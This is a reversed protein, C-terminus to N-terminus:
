RYGADTGLLELKLLPLSCTLHAAEEPSGRGSVTSFASRSPGTHDSRASAAAGNCPHPHGCWSFLSKSCTQIAKNSMRLDVHFAQVPYSLFVSISGKLTSAAKALTTKCAHAQSPSLSLDPKERMSQYDPFPLLWYFQYTSHWCCGERELQPCIYLDM